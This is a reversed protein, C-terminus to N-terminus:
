ALLKVMALTVGGIFLTGALTAYLPKLGAAKVKAWRLDLGLGAMAVALLLTDLQVLRDIAVSPLLGTSRIVMTAVFLAVFWPVPSVKAGGGAGKAKRFAVSLIITMPALMLVRGLKVVTATEVASGTTSAADFSFAAAVVQAVEHISAGAWIGFADASMGMVHGLLPYFLMAITGYLTITGVGVATEEDKADIVGAVAAIAAAGCISTGSALVTSLSKSLGLRKGIWISFLFTGGVSVLVIAIGAPGIALVQSLGLRLGLLGVALRLIQKASFTIGPQVAAPMKVTNAAVAGILIAWILPSMAPTKQAVLFSVGGVAAALLVGPALQRLRSPVPAPAGVLRVPRENEDPRPPERGLPQTPLAFAVAVMAGGFLLGVLGPALGTATVLTPAGFDFPEVLPGSLRAHVLAYVLAGLLGGGITFLADRRGEAAGVLCTGPCYGGVAFGVGFILGGLGVALLPLSKIKLHALGVSSLLGIGIAGVGIALVMFKLISLDRLTLTAIIRDPSSAQVRQLILGFSLGLGLSIVVTILSM